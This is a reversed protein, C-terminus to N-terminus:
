SAVQLAESLDTPIRLVDGIKNHSETPRKNFDAIVWWYNPDGYFISALRWYMDGQKWIHEVTEVADYVSQEYVRKSKTKYQIIKKIGRKDFLNRYQENENLM